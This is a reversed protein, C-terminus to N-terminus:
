AVRSRRLPSRARLDAVTPLQDAPVVESVMVEGFLRAAELLAAREPEGGNMLWGMAAAELRERAVEIPSRM